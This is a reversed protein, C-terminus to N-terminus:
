TEDFKFLNENWPCETKGSLKGPYENVMSKVYDRMDVKLVGKCSFDLVMALYDHRDTRNAKVEGIDDSAYKENLWKLIM